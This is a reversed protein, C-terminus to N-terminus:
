ILYNWTTTLYSTEYLKSQLPGLIHNVNCESRKKELLTHTGTQNTCGFKLGNPANLWFNIPEFGQVKKKRHSAHHCWRAYWKNPSFACCHLVCCFLIFIQLLLVFSAHLSHLQKSGLVLERNTSCPYKHVKRGSINWCLIFTIPWFFNTNIQVSAKM